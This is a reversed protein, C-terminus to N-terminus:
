KLLHFKKAATGNATSLRYFYIGGPLGDGELGVRHTGASLSGDFLVKVKQGIINYVSLDVNGASAISFEVVSNGSFPNPFNQNLSFRLPNNGDPESTGATVLNSTIVDTVTTIDNFVPVKGKHRIIKSGDIVILRDYTTEYDKQVNSAKLLLPFSVGTQQKFNQVSERSGNWTDMGLASFAENEKFLNVLESQVYPAVSKCNSCNYGFLFILLVKGHYDNLSVVNGDLDNLSFDPAEQGIEQANVVFSLSTFVMIFIYLTIKRLM